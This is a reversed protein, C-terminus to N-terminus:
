VLHGKFNSTGQHQQHQHQQKSLDGRSRTFEQDPYLKCTSNTRLQSSLLNINNQSSKILPVNNLHPRSGTVNLRSSSRDYPFPRAEQFYVSNAHGHTPATQKSDVFSSNNAALLGNLNQHFSSSNLHKSSSSNVAATTSGFHGPPRHNHYNTNFRNNTNGTNPNFSSRVVNTNNLNVPKSQYINSSINKDLQRLSTLYVEDDMMDAPDTASSTPWSSQHIPTAYEIAYDLCNGSEGLEALYKSSMNNIHTVFPKNEDDFGGGFDFHYNLEDPYPPPPSFMEVTNAETENTDTTSDAEGKRKRRRVLYVIFAVNLLMFLTGSSCIILIVTLPFESNNFMPLQNVEGASFGFDTQVILPERLFGETGFKNLSQINIVYRTAPELSDLVIGSADDTTEVYKYSPDLTDKRYRILFKQTEGGDFNKKWALGITNKTINVVRFESPQEPQDSIFIM